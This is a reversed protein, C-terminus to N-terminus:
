QRPAQTMLPLWSSSTSPRPSMTLFLWAITSLLVSTPCGSTTPPSTPSTSSMAFPMTAPTASPGAPLPLEELRAPRFEAMRRELEALPDDTSFTEEPQGSRLISVQSGRAEFRLFPDAGLFSYRGVKEGGIVSEFLCGDSGADIRAFASLPTLSDAFIRRYVPVLGAKRAHQAFQERDPLHSMLGVSAAKPAPALRPWRSM